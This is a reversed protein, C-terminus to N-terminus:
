AGAGNKSMAQCFKNPLNEAFILFDFVAKSKDNRIDRSRKLASNVTRTLWSEVVANVDLILEFNESNPIQLEESINV